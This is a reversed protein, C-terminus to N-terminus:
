IYILNALTLHFRDSHIAISGVEHTRITTRRHWNPGEHAKNVKEGEDLIVERGGLCNFMIARNFFSFATIFVKSVPRLYFPRDVDYTV